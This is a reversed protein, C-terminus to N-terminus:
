SEARYPRPLEIAPPASYDEIPRFRPKKRKLSRIEELDKLDELSELLREYEKIDLIVAAPKGNRLVIKPYFNLRAM